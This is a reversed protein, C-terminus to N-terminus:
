MESIPAWPRLGRKMAPLQTVTTKRSRDKMASRQSRCEPWNTGFLPLSSLNKAIADMKKEIAPASPRMRRDMKSVQLCGSFCTPNRMINMYASAISPSQSAPSASKGSGPNAVQDAREAEARLVQSQSNEIARLVPDQEDAEPDLETENDNFDSECDAKTDATMVWM